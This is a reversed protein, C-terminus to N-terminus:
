NNIYFSAECASKFIAGRHGNYFGIKKIWRYDHLTMCVAVMDDGHQKRHGNCNSEDVWWFRRKPSEKKM